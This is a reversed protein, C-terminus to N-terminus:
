RANAYQRKTERIIIPALDALVTSMRVSVVVSSPPAGPFLIAVSRVPEVDPRMCGSTGLGQKKSPTLYEAITDNRVLERDAPYPGRPYDDMSQLNQDVIIKRMIQMQKPFYRAVIGAVEFRGSTEGESVWKEIFPGSVKRYKDSLVEKPHITNPSLFLGAGDSGAIGACSWGRPGLM